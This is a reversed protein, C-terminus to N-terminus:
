PTTQAAALRRRAIGSWATDIKAQLVESASTSAVELLDATANAAAAVAAPANPVCYTRDLSGPLEGLESDLLSVLGFVPYPVRRAAAFLRLAQQRAESIREAAEFLSGRRLYKAVDSLAWWGLMAWERAQRVTPPDAVPPRWPVALTADKDVIAIAGDPIGQRRHAPMLVLDLQVGSAYEVAFRRVGPPWAPLAHVLLGLTSGAAEVLAAGEREVDELAFPEAYGVGADIDSLQDGRGAALSCSLELWRWRESDDVERRLGELVEAHAPLDGAGSFLETPGRTVLGVYTGTRVTKGAVRLRCATGHRATSM